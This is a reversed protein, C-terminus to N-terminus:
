GRWREGCPCGHDGRHGELGDCKHHSVTRGCWSSRRRAEGRGTQKWRAKRERDCQRCKRWGRYDLHTNEATWPHGNKCEVDYQERPRVEAGEEARRAAYQERKRVLECTHCYRRGDKRYRVNGDDMRHGRKCVDKLPAAM